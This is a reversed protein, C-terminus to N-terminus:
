ETKDPAEQVLINQVEWTPASAVEIGDINTNYRFAIVIRENNYASLDFIGSTRFTWNSGDPLEEPFDLVQWETTTVDGTFNNTVLVNLWKPNLTPDGYRVAQDFSFQPRQSKKLRIVPSILWDEVRHNTGSVYASATAGYAAQYRWVYNLGDLLIHQTTFKGLGEGVIKASLYTSINAIWQNNKVEFSMSEEVYGTAMVYEAGDYVFIDAAPGSATKYIVLYEDDAAAYPYNLLLFKALTTEPTTITASGIKDYDAPQLTVVRTVVDNSYAAWESGTLQFSSTTATTHVKAAAAYRAPAEVAHSVYIGNILMPEAGEDSYKGRIIIPDGTKVGLDKWIKNNGQEDSVGNVYLSYDGDVMYFRGYISSKISGVIGMVEHEKYDPHEMLAALSCRYPLFDYFESEDPEDASYEYSLVMIKGDGVTPFRTALWGPLSDMSAPSLYYVGRKKWIQEYDDSTLTYGTSTKFELVSSSKGELLSYTLECLTGNDLYPFKEALVAGAYMDASADETFCKGKAIALLNTYASSDQPTCLAKAKAINAANKSVAAYDDETFTYTMGTRIDTVQPNVNNLQKEDFFNRCASLCLVLAPLIYIYKKM